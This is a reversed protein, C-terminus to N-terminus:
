LYVILAGSKSKKHKEWQFSLVKGRRKMEALKEAVADPLVARGQSHLGKGVIIRVTVLGAGLAGHVFAETRQQAQLASCGHLDLQRQPPPHAKIQQRISMRQAGHREQRIKEELLQQLDREGLSRQVRRAFPPAAPSTRSGAPAAPDTQVGFLTELDAEPALLPLGHRDRRPPASGKPRNKGASAPAASPAPPRRMGNSVGRGGNERSFLLALDEDEKLVPLGHRNVPPSPPQSRPTKPAAAPPAGRAKVSPGSDGNAFPRLTGDPAPPAPRAPKHAAAPAGPGGAPPATSGAAAGDAPRPRQLRRWLKKLEEFM